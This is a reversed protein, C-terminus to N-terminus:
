SSHLRRPVFHSSTGQSNEDWASAQLLHHVAGSLTAAVVVASKVVDKVAREQRTKEEKNLRRLEFQIQRREARFSRCHSLM